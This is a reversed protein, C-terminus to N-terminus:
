SLSTLQPETRHSPVCKAMSEEDTNAQKANSKPTTPTASDRSRKLINFGGGQCLIQPVWLRSDPRWLCSDKALFPPGPALNSPAASSQKAPSYRRLLRALACEYRGWIWKATVVPLSAPFPMPSCSPVVTDLRQQANPASKEGEHRARTLPLANTPVTDTLPAVRILFALM